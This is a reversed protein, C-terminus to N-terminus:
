FYCPFALFLITYSKQPIAFLLVILLGCNRRGSLCIMFKEVLPFNLSKREQEIPEILSCLFHTIMAWYEVHKVPMCGTVYWLAFTTALLPSISHCWGSFILCNALGIYMVALFKNEMVVLLREKSFLLRISVLM